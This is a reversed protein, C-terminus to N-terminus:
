ASVLRWDERELDQRKEDADAVAAARTNWRRSQYFQGKYFFQVDVGYEGQYLLRAEMDRGDKRM